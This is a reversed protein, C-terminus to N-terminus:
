ETARKIRALCLRAKNAYSDQPCDRVVRNLVEEAEKYKSQLMNCYGIFFSAELAQKTDPHERTLKSFIDYARGFESLQLYVKGKLLIAKTALDENVSKHNNIFTNLESLLENYKGGEFLCECVRLKYASRDQDTACKSALDRYIKVAESFDSRAICIRARKESTQTYYEALEPKNQVYKSFNGAWLGDKRLGRDIAEAYSTSDNAESFIADLFLKFAARDKSSEFDKAIHDLNDLVWSSNSMSKKVADSYDSASINKSLWLLAPVYNRGFLQQSISQKYATAVDKTSADAAEKAKALMFYRESSFLEHRPDIENTNREKWLEYEAIKKELFVILKQPEQKEAISKAKHLEDTLKLFAPTVFSEGGYSNYLEKIEAEDLAHNYIRLDDIVGNFNFAGPTFPECGIKFSGPSAGLVQNTLLERDLVGNVYTRIYGDELSYVGAIHYWIGVKIETGGAVNRNLIDVNDATRIEFEIRNNHYISMKYGGNIDNQNGAIKHDLDQASVKIWSTITVTGTIDLSPHTGCDLWNGTGDFELAGDFYGVVWQPNGEFLGDNGYVSSDYAMTGIGEDFKWHGVLAASATGTVILVFPIILKELINEM